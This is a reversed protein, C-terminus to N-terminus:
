GGGVQPMVTHMPLCVHAVARPNTHVPCPAHLQQEVHMLQRRVHLAGHLRQMCVRGELPPSYGCLMSARATTCAADGAARGRM